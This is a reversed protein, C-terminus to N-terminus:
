NYILYIDYTYINMVSVVADFRMLDEEYFHLYIYYVWPAYFVYMYMYM